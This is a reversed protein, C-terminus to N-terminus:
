LIKKCFGAILRPKKSPIGFERVLSFSWSSSDTSLFILLCWGWYRKNRGLHFIWYNQLGFKPRFRKNWGKWTGFCGCVDSLNARETSLFFVFMNGLHHNLPLKATFLSFLVKFLSLRMNKGLFNCWGNQVFIFTDPKSCPIQTLLSLVLMCWSITKSCIMSGLGTQVRFQAQYVM